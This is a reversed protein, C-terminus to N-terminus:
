NNTKAENAEVSKKYFNELIEETAAPDHVYYFGTWEGPLRHTEINNFDFGIITNAYYVMDSLGMDTKVYNFATNVVAPLKPGIAKQAALIMFQQQRNIRGIDGDQYSGDNNQRWRLYKVSNSGNLVQKGAPIDIHLPPDSYEDDYLMHFPVNVEVGGILDIIEAVGNYNVKVYYHIPLQLLNAVEKKMGLSGGGTKGLGYVANIKKQDKREHGPVYHYTDRPVSIADVLKNDPDYSVLMIMDARAGDTGFVLVNIRNTSDIMKQLETRTDVPESPEVEGGEQVTNGVTETPAPPDPQVAVVEADPRMSTFAFLVGGLLFAFCVFSLLFIKLYYKLRFVGKENVNKKM